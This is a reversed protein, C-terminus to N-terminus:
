ERSSVGASQGPKHGNGTEPKLPTLSGTMGMELYRIRLEESEESPYFLNLLEQTIESPAVHMLLEETDGRRMNALHEMRELKEVVGEARLLAKVEQFLLENGFLFAGEQLIKCALMRSFSDFRVQERVRSFPKVVYDLEERLHPTLLLRIKEQYIADDLRKVDSESCDNSLVVVIDMDSGNVLKGTSREPRPVDHSMNYVIDGAIIFCAKEEIGDIEAALGSITQFAVDLKSRSVEAIHARLGATKEKLVNQANSLGVVSYTLFSRWISPSLRAFGPIKRDLRLYRTYMTQIELDPCRRCAQWLALSDGSVLARIKAGPLPGRKKICEVITKEMGELPFWQKYPLSSIWM